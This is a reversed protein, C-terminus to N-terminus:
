PQSRDIRQVLRTLMQKVGETERSLTEYSEEPLYGLDRSLLILYFLEGASGLAMYLFRRFDSESQRGCGEAINAPISVSARRIQSVLGFRETDPLAETGRYMALVLRHSKQWVELNRFDQM